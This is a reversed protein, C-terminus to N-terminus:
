LFINVFCGLGVYYWDIYKEFYNYGLVLNLVYYSFKM